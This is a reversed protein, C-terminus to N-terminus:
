SNPDAGAIVSSKVFVMRNGTAPPDVAITFM